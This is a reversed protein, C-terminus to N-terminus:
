KYDRWDLESPIISPQNERMRAVMDDKEEDTADIGAIVTMMRLLDGTPKFDYGLTQILFRRFLAADKNSGFWNIVPNLMMEIV